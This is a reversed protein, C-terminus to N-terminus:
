RSARAAKASWGWGNARALDFSVGHVLERAAPPVTLDRVQLLTM